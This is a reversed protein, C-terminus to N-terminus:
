QKLFSKVLGYHLKEKQVDRGSDFKVLPCLQALCNILMTQVMRHGKDM